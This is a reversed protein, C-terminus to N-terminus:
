INSGVLADIVRRSESAMSYANYKDDENGGAWDMRPSRPANFAHPNRTIEWREQADRQQQQRENEQEQAAARNRARIEKMDSLIKEFRAKVEPSSKAMQDKIREIFLWNDNGYLNIVEPCITQGSDIAKNLWNQIHHLGPPRVNAVNIDFGYILKISEPSKFTEGLSPYMSKAWTDRLRLVSQKLAPWHPSKSIADKKLTGDTFPKLFNTFIGSERALEQAAPLRKDYIVSAYPNPFDKTLDIPTVYGFATKIAHTPISNVPIASGDGALTFLNPVTKEAAATITSWPVAASGAGIGLMKLFGRRSVAEGLIVDVVSM